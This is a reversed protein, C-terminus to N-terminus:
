RRLSSYEGSLFKLWLSSAVAPELSMLDQLHRRTSELGNKSLDAEKNCQNLKIQGVDLEVAQISPLHQLLHGLM